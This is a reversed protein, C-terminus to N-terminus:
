MRIWSTIKVRNFTIKHINSTYLSTLNVFTVKFTYTDYQLM